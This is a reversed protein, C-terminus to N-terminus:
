LSVDERVRKLAETLATVAEDQEPTMGHRTGTFGLKM